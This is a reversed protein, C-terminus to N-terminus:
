YGKLCRRIKLTTTYEPGVTHEANEVFWKGDYQGIGSLNFTMGAAILPNGIALEVEAHKTDKNRKRLHAKAKREGSASASTDQWELLEDARLEPAGGGDGEEEDDDTNENVNDQLAELAQDVDSQRVPQSGKGGAPVSQAGGGEPLQGPTIPSPEISIGTGTDILQDATFKSSKTSGTGISSTKLKATKLSDTLNINFKGSSMRYVSLGGAVAANGYVLTFSAAKEEYTQEDFFVLTNRHVKISLKADDARKRLFALASEETQEVRSYRPNIDSQWDLAMKNEGVIQQAIDKLSTDEWGRTENVAKIRVGSPISSAKISVTHQPLEFEVSDIWFRGCDLKLTASNPAFWREAMIAVDMFAGIDPSWDSIFRRDRDALQLQLDDAKQGDCSDNYVLNLFYPALEAYYDRGSLTISPRATRVQTIM